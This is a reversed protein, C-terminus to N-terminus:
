IAYENVVAELQAWDDEDLAGVYGAFADIGQNFAGELTMNANTFASPTTKATVNDVNM